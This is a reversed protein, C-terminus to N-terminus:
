SLLTKLFQSTLPVNHVSQEDNFCDLFYQWMLWNHFVQINDESGSLCRQNFSVYPVFLVQWSLKVTDKFRFTLFRVMFWHLKGFWVLHLIKKHWKLCVNSVLLFRSVNDHGDHWVWLNVSWWVGSAGVSSLCFSTFSLICLRWYRIDLPFDFTELMYWCLPRLNKEVM